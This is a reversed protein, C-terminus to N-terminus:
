AIRAVEYCNHEAHKIVTFSKKLLRAYMSASRRLAPESVDDFPVTFAKGILLANFPYKSRATMEDSIGVTDVMTTIRRQAQPSCDGIQYSM